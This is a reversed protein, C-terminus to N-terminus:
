LIEPPNFYLLRQAGVFGGMADYRSMGPARATLHNLAQADAGLGALFARLEREQRTHRVGSVWGHFSKGGTDVLACLRMGNREDLWRQIIAFKERKIEDSEVLTYLRGIWGVRNATREYGDFYVTKDKGHHVLTNASPCFNVVSMQEGLGGYPTALWDKVTRFNGKYEPKGTQWLEGTWLLDTPKFMRSIFLRWQALGDEPVPIPSLKLWDQATIPNAKLLAPRIDRQAKAKFRKCRRYLATQAATWKKVERTGEFGGEKIL